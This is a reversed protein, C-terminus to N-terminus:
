VSKMMRIIGSMLKFIMKKGNIYNHIIVNLNLTLILSNVPNSQNQIVPLALNNVNILKNFFPM